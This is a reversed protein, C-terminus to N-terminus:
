CPYAVWIWIVNSKRTSNTPVKTPKHNRNHYPLVPTCSSCATLSHLLESKASSKTGYYTAVYSAESYELMAIPLEALARLTLYQLNFAHDHGVAIKVTSSNQYSKESRLKKLNPGLACAAMLISSLISARFIQFIIPINSTTLQMRIPTDYPAVIYGHSDGCLNARLRWQQCTPSKRWNALLVGMWGPPTLRFIIPWNQFQM